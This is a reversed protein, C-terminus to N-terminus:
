KKNKANAGKRAIDSRQQATLKAARAPGGAKGGKAGIDSAQNSTTKGAQKAVTPVGSFLPKGFTKYAYFDQYAQVYEPLAERVTYDKLNVSALHDPAVAPYVALFPLSIAQVRFPIGTSEFPPEIPIPLQIYATDGTYEPKPIQRPKRDMIILWMGCKINDPAVPKTM